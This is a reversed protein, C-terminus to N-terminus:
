HFCIIHVSLDTVVHLANDIYLMVKGATMAERHRSVSSLQRRYGYLHLLRL